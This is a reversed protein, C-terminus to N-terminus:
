DSLLFLSSNFKFAIRDNESFAGLSLVIWRMLVRKKHVPITEHFNVCGKIRVFFSMPLSPVKDYIRYKAHWMRSCSTNRIGRDMRYDPAKSLHISSYVFFPFYRLYVCLLPWPMWIDCRDIKVMGKEESSVKQHMDCRKTNKDKQM